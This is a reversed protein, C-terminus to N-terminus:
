ITIEFKLESKYPREKAAHSVIGVFIGPVGHPVTEIMVNLPIDGGICNFRLYEFHFDPQTLLM